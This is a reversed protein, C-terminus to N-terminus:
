PTQAPPQVPQPNQNGARGLFDGVSRHTWLTQIIEWIILLSMGQPLANGVGHVGRVGGALIGRIAMGVLMLVLLSVVILFLWWNQVVLLVVAIGIAVPVTQQITWPTLGAILVSLVLFALIWWGFTEIASPGSQSGFDLKIGQIEPEPPIEGRLERCRLSDPPECPIVAQTVPQARQASQAPAAAQQGASQQPRVLWFLYAGAILLASAVILVIRIARSRGQRSRGLEEDMNRM